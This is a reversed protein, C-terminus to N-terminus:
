AIFDGGDISVLWGDSADWIAVYDASQTTTGTVNGSIDDVADAVEIEAKFRVTVGDVAPDNTFGNM